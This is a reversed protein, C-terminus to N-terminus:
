SGFNERLNPYLFSKIQSLVTKVIDVYSSVGPLFSTKFLFHGSNKKEYYDLLYQMTVENLRRPQTLISGAFMPESRRKTAKIGVM